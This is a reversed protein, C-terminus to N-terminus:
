EMRKGKREIGGSSFWSYNHRRRIGHTSGINRTSCRKKEYIYNNCQSSKTDFVRLSSSSVIWVGIYFTDVMNAEQM